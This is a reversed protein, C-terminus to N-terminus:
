RKTVRLSPARDKTTTVAAVDSAAIEGAKVFADLKNRDLVATTVKRWMAAGLRKKLRDEDISHVQAIVMTAKADDTTHSKVGLRDLETLAVDAAATMREAAQDRDHRAQLYTQLAEDLATTNKTTEKLTM